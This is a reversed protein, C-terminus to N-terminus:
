QTLRIIRDRVQQFADNLQTSDGAFFYRGEPQSDDFDDSEPDNAIRQLISSGTEMPDYGQLQNLLDGLGLTFIHIRHKGDADNRIENAITEALNRSAKAVNQAHSPYPHNEDTAGSTDRLLTRQGPLNTELLFSTPMGTSSPNPHSSAIPLYPIDPIRSNTYGQGVNGRDGKWCDPGPVICKPEVSLTRCCNSEIPILGGVVPFDTSSGGRAPFDQVKIAGQQMVWTDANSHESPRRRFVGSFTNPAGDTFLVIVRVGAQVDSPVRRLQDWGRFLGEATSTKGHSVSNDIHGHISGRDFGRGADEIPDAVVTDTSFLVLAIRDDEEDFFDVFTNAAAKVEGYGAGLSASHDIVFSLDVLRRTAQGRAGVDISDYGRVRMFTTPLPVTASVTVLHAGRNPGSPVTAFEVTPTPATGADLADAPFNLAFIKEAEDQAADEGNPIIRAAALAAADVATALQLRVAYARGLDVALGVILCLLVLFIGVYVLAIGREARRDRVM